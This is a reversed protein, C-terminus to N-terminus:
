QEEELDDLASAVLAEAGHIGRDPEGCLRPFRFGLEAPEAASRPPRTNSWPGVRNKPRVSVITEPESFADLYPSAAMSISMLFSAASAIPVKQSVNPPQPLATSAEAKGCTPMPRRPTDRAKPRVTRVM